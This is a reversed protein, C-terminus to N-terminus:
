TTCYFPLAFCVLCVWKMDRFGNCSDPSRFHMTGMEGDEEMHASTYMEWRPRKLCRNEREAVLVCGEQRRLVTEVSHM